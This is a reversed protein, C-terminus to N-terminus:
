VATAAAERVVGSSVLSDIRHPAIGWRALATRSSQGATEPPAPVPAPTREFRPAPAPQSIGGVTIFTERARNHPHAEAEAM